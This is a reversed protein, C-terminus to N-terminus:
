KETFNQMIKWFNETFYTTDIYSTYLFHSPYDFAVRHSLSKRLFLIKNKTKNTVNTGMQIGSLHYKNFNELKNLKM